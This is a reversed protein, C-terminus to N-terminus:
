STDESSGRMDPDTHSNTRSDKLSDEYGSDGGLHAMGEGRQLALSRFDPDESGHGAHYASCLISDDSYISSGRHHHYHHHGPPVPLRAQQLLRPDKDPGALSPNGWGILGGGTGHHGIGHGRGGLAGIGGGGEM